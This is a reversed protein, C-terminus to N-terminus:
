VHGVEHGHHIRQDGQSGVRLINRDQVLAIRISLPVPDIGPQTLDEAHVYAAVRVTGPHYARMDGPGSGGAELCHYDVIAAVDPRDNHLSVDPRHRFEHAQDFLGHRSDPLQIPQRESYWHERHRFALDLRRHLRVPDGQGSHATNQVTYRVLF